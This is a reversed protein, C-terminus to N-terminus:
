QAFRTIFQNALAPQNDILIIDDVYVLLYLSTTGTNLAFLSNDAHFNQFGDAM